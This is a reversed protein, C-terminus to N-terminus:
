RGVLALCSVQETHPKLDRRLEFGAGAGAGGRLPLSSLRCNICLLLM